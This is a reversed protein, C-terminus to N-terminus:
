SRKWFAWAAKKGSAAKSADKSPTPTYTPITSAVVPKASFVAPALAKLREQDEPSFERTLSQVISVRRMAAVAPMQNMIADYSQAVARAQQADMSLLVQMRSKTFSRLSAEPLAYEGQAMSKLADRREEESARALEEYRSRMQPERVEEAQDALQAWMAGQVDQTTM